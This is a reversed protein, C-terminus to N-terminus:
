SDVKLHASASTSATVNSSLLAKLAAGGDTAVPTWAKFATLITDVVSALAAADSSGGVQLSSGSLTVTPAGPVKITVDNSHIKIESGGDQGVILAGPDGAPDSFVYADPAFMPIAFCSDFTHKGVFFPDNPQPGTSTKPSARWTDTSVDSMLLLVSDGVAVPLWVFFKGGRMTGLPVDCVSVADEYFVQGIPDTHPTNIAVQVDVTMKAPYVATVTAPICKKMSTFIDDKQQGLIEAPSRPLPM